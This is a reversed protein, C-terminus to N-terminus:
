LRSESSRMGIVTLQERKVWGVRRQGDSIQLWGQTEDLVHVEAGDRLTYASQSEDVPGHRVVAEKGIVVADRLGFREYCAAGLTGGFVLTAALALRQWSHLATASAPRLKAAALLGLWLWLATGGLLTWENLSVTRLASRWKPEEHRANATERAFRLNARLDPDRPTLREAELYAAIARGIEGSKFKANGLNFLLAPSNQGQVRLREYATAAEAYKGQEYLKNAQEFAEEPQAAYACSAIIVALLGVIWRLSHFGLKM